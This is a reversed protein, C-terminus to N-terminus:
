NNYAVLFSVDKDISLEAVIGPLHFLIVSFQTDVSSTKNPKLRLSIIFKQLVTTAVLAALSVGIM